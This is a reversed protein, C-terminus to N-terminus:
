KVKVKIKVIKTQGNKLTVIVKITVTGAKKATVKGNKSVTAVSKKSTSYTILEVNDMDLKSSMQVTTKKGTEVTASTKKVKVTALIEKEVAAADKSDLLQYTAGEPLTVKINGAESVTYTKANVLVYKGTKPDIAMVKLKNGATIDEADAKITYEKKGATVTMVIEVSETGAAETIQPVVSGSLTAKVGTKTNAGSKDVVAQASTIEGAANKEVMVTADAKGVINEIVSTETIGTVNGEADKQTETTVTVAKGAENTVTEMKTETITGDPNTIVTTDDPTTTTDDTSPTEPTTPIPPTTVSGSGGSPTTSSTDEIIYFDDWSGWGGAAINSGKVTITVTTNNETIKVKSISTDIWNKWGMLEDATTTVPDSDGVQISYTFEADDGVDGGQIYGGFSYVGSKAITVEIEAEYSFADDSYFKLANSGTRANGDAKIGVPGNVTAWTPNSEEMSYNPMYNYPLITVRCKVDKSLEVDEVNVTVTGKIVYEGAGSNKANTIDSANWAVDVKQTTADNFGVKAQGLNKIIDEGYTLEISEVTASTIAKQTIYTGTSVYNFVKLSELPHGYMDFMAQNDMASGGYWTAADVQYDGAYSSAWGSGYTEWKQVNSNRISQNLNGNSDYAYQVPIWAPEWYFAGIGAEGVDVVAKMVTRVETAQGLVSFEYYPTDNNGVRIQNDHGDGDELTTAWSTEAVMVKKSYTDAITTLVTTLNPTEGHFFPYYSSAFVDYDVEYNKLNEAYEVYRGATQPDAFHLAIMIKSGKEVDEGYRTKEVERVASCGANFLKCINNWDNEGCFYANTENGVQVMGVNVGAELLETLSNKTYTSIAEAKQEVSYGEWAKPTYQKGPDTWFDSYHFDILVKMGAATAWKGIEKAKKLDNTGGGYGNGNEDYPNYWVRIRVYNVGCSALLRFFGPDDLENGEFDYYKVGSDKESIYSSVDVGKIFDSPLNSIKDIKIGAEVAESIDVEEDPEKTLLLTEIICSADKNLWVSIGIEREDGNGTIDFTLKCENSSNEDVEMYPDCKGDIYANLWVNDSETKAIVTVTYKKGNLTNIKQYFNVQEGSTSSLTINDDSYTASNNSCTWGTLNEDLGTFLNEANGEVSSNSEESKVLEVDDFYISKTCWLSSKIGIVFDTKEEKLTFSFTYKDWDNWNESHTKTQDENVTGDYIPYIEAWAGKCSFSFTYTGAPLTDITQKLSFDEASDGSEVSNSVVLINSGTSADGWDTQIAYSINESVSDIKWNVPTENSDEFNGNTIHNTDEAKVVELGAGANWVGIQSVVMAAALVAGAVRNKWDKKRM